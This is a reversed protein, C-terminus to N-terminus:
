VLVGVVLPRRTQRRELELAHERVDGGDLDAAGVVGATLLSLRRM